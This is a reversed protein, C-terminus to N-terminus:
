LGVEHSTAKGLEVDKASVFITAWPRCKATDIWLEAVVTQSLDTFLLLRVNASIM